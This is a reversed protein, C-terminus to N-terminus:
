ISLKLNQMWNTQDLLLTSLKWFILFAEFIRDLLRRTGQLLLGFFRCTEDLQQCIVNVLSILLSVKRTNMFRYNPLDRDCWSDKCMMNPALLCEKFSHLVYRVSVQVHESEHKEFVEFNDGLSVLLQFFSILILM